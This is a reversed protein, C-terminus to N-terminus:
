LLVELYQRLVKEVHLAKAYQMLRRLNKDKRKVYRKLTDQFVQMEINSRNRIVDCVTREMDYVPVENGFTTEMTTKGLDYLERKICHVQMGDKKLKSPNYGTKVTVSYKDPERDTLDHFLLATEHSYIIQGCRLHMIYMSDVWIDESIYIGHAMKELHNEEVYKYFTPKSIGAEVVQATQIMGKQQEVLAKIKEFQNM